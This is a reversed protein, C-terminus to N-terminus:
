QPSLSLLIRWSDCLIDLLPCEVRIYCYVNRLNRLCVVVLFPVYISTHANKSMTCRINNVTYTRECTGTGRTWVTGLTGSM